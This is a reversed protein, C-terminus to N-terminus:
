FFSVRVFNSRESFADNLTGRGFKKMKKNDWVKKLSVKTLKLLDKFDNEIHLSVKKANELMFSDDKTLKKTM